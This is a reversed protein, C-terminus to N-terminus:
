RTAERDPLPATLTPGDLFWDLAPRLDPRLYLRMIVSPDNARWADALDADADPAPSAALGEITTVLETLSCRV